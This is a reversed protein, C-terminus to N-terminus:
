PNGDFVRDLHEQLMPAEGSATDEGPPAERARTRTASPLRARLFFPCFAPVRGCAIERFVKGTPTKPLDAPDEPLRLDVQYVGAGLYRRTAGLQDLLALMAANEALVYNRFVTIDQALASETLVALLVTGLGHGQYQDVVTVAVEAVGPEDPLRIYRAIGMMPRDPDDVGLALWAMHDVYDIETLYALLQEDLEAVPTHFRLYRSRPSLREFAEALRAKDDPRVPRLLARSGDRLKCTRARQAQSLM